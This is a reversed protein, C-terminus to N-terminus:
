KIELPIISQAFKKPSLGESKKFLKSFYFLDPIGVEEAIEKVTRENSRLLRKAEEMRLSLLYQTVTQGTAQKFLTGFYKPSLNARAALLPVDLKDKYNQRMFRVAETMLGAHPSEIRIGEKTTLEIYVLGLLRLMSSKLWLHSDARSEQYHETLEKFAEHFATTRSPRMFEPIDWDQVEATPRARLWNVDPLTEGQKRGLYVSPSFDTAEGLFMYDFHVAFCQMPGNESVFMENLHHPRIYLLVGAEMTYTASEIKLWGTGSVIFIFEHDYIYREALHSGPAVLVEHIYRVYPSLRKFDVRYTSAM